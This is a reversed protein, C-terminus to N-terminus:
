CAHRSVAGCAATRLPTVVDRTEAPGPAQRLRRIVVAGGAGGQQMPQCREGGAEREQTHEDPSRRGLPARSETWKRRTRLLAFLNRGEPAIQSHREFHRSGYLYDSVFAKALDCDTRPR